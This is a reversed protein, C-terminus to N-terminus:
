NLKIGGLKIAEQEAESGVEVLLETKIKGTCTRLDFGSEQIEHVQSGYYKFHPAVYGPVSYWKVM